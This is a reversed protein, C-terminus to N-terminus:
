KLRSAMSLIKSKITDMGVMNRSLYVEWYLFFKKLEEYTPYDPDIKELFDAQKKECASEAEAQTIIRLEGQNENKEM